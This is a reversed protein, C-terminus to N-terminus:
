LCQYSDPGNEGCQCCSSYQKAAVCREDRASLFCRGVVLWASGVKVGAVEVCLWAIIGPKKEEEKKGERRKKRNPRPQVAMAKNAPIDFSHSYARYKMHFFPSTSLFPPLSLFARLNKKIAEGRPNGVAACAPLCAPSSACGCAAAATFHSLHLDEEGEGVCELTHYSYPLDVTRKAARNERGGRGEGGVGLYFPGQAHTRRDRPPASALPSEANLSPM